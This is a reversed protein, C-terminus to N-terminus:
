PLCHVEYWDFCGNYADLRFSAPAKSHCSPLLVDIHSISVDGASGPRSRIDRTLEVVCEALQSPDRGSLDSSTGLSGSVVLLLVLAASALEVRGM